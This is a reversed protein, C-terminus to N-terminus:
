KFWFVFPFIVVVIITWISYVPLFMTISNEVESIDAKNSVNRYLRFAVLLLNTLMLINSGLVALRNPSFGMETIRYLIASLAVCNVVITLVSLAFLIISGAKYERKNFSGAVSFLIIAMVGILLFNFALLFERDSYPNKGSFLMAILYIFLTILVLPSFIKAIIPSVKSVLKPNNGLIYAAVIPAASLGMVGIYRFYFEKVDINILSFLFSSLATLIGGSILIPVIVILLDGNFRLFELKKSYNKYEGRTFAYGALTWLFLPLHIAALILTNSNAAPLFNMFIVFSLVISGLVIIKKKDLNNKWAFYGILIPLFVFGVNRPYYFEEKLHFIDPIKAIFGAILSAIIVFFLEYPRKSTAEAIEDSEYNLRENWFGAAPIGAIEPYIRNFENKFATRDERYLMELEHPDNIIDLIDM